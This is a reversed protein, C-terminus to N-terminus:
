QLFTAKSYIPHKEILCFDAIFSNFDFNRLREPPRTEFNNVEASVELSALHLKILKKRFMWLKLELQM